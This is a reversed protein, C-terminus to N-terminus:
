LSILGLCSGWNAVKSVPSSSWTFTDGVHSVMLGVFEPSGKQPLDAQVFRRFFRLLAEALPNRLLFHGALRRRLSPAGLAPQPIAPNMELVGAPM